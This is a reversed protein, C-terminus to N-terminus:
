VEFRLKYATADEENEFDISEILGRALGRGDSRVVTGNNERVWLLLKMRNETIEAFSKVRYGVKSYDFPISIM